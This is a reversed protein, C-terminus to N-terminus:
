VPDFREILWKGDDKKLEVRVSSATLTPTANDATVTSQNVFALVVARDASASAVATGVVSAQTDVAKEKAAPIVVKSTFDRYYELFDGTLRDQAAAVNEDVSGHKYSLIAVAGDAAVKGVESSSSEAAREPAMHQWYQVGLGAVLAACIVSVAAWRLESKHLHVFRTIRSGRQERREEAPDAQDRGEHELDAQELDNNESM